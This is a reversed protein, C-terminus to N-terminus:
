APDALCLRRPSQIALFRVPRLERFRNRLLEEFPGCLPGNEGVGIAFISLEYSFM